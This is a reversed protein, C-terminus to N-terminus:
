GGGGTVGGKNPARKRFGGGIPSTIKVLRAIMSGSRERSDDENVEENEDDSGGSLNATQVVWPAVAARLNLDV